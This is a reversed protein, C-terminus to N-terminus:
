SGTPIHQPQSYEISKVWPFRDASVKKWFPRSGRRWADIAIGTNFPDGRATIVLANNERFTGAFAEGWHVEYYRLDKEALAKQLEGVYHYCYGKKRIGNNILFNHFLSSGGIKYERSLRYINEIVTKAILDAENLTAKDGDGNMLGVIDQKLAVVYEWFKIENTLEHYRAISKKEAPSLKVKPERKHRRLKGLNVSKGLESLHEEHKKLSQEATMTRDNASIEYKPLLYATSSTTHFLIVCFILTTAIHKM